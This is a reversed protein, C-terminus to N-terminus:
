GSRSVDETRFAIAYYADFITVYVTLEWEGMDPAIGNTPYHAAMNLSGDSCMLAPIPLIKNLGM